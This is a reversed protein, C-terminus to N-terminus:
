AGPARRVLAFTGTPPKEGAPLQPWDKLLITGAIRDRSVLKGAYIWFGGGRNSQKWSMEGKAAATELHPARANNPLITAGSYRDKTSDAVDFVMVIPISREGGPGGTLTFSGDWVGAYPHRASRPAGKPAEGARPGPGAGGSRAVQGQVGSPALAVLATALAITTTTTVLRHM